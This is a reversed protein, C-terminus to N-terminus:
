RASSSYSSAAHTAWSHGAEGRVPDGNPRHPPRRHVLAWVGGASSSAITRASTGVLHHATGGGEIAALDFVHHGVKPHQDIRVVLHAPPPDHVHGLPPPPSRPPWAPRSTPYGRRITRRPPQGPRPPRLTPCPWRHGAPATQGGRPTVRDSRPGGRSRESSFPSAIAGPASASRLDM